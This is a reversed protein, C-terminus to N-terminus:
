GRHHVHEGTVRGPSRNTHRHSQLHLQTSRSDILAVISVTGLSVPVQMTKNATVGAIAHLSIVPNNSAPEETNGDDSEGEHLKLFLHKCVRNHGRAFKEDCNFCLGLRRREDMEEPSLWRIARGSSSSPRACLPSSSDSGALPPLQPTSLKPLLGRSSRPPRNASAQAAAVAQERHKYARALSMAVELTVPHQLEVDISLPEQLGLTFLQIKQNMSLPGARPLLELFRETYADVTGTRRCSALEGLPCARVPPGFSLNLLEAFHQWPPCGKKRTCNCTGSNHLTKWTTHYWGYRDEPVVRQQFFVRM